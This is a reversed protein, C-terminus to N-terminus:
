PKPEVAPPAESPLSTGPAVPYRSAIIQNIARSGGWLAVYLFLFVETLKDHTVQWIMAWTTIVFAGSQFVRGPEVNWWDEGDRQARSALLSRLDFGDGPRLQWFALLCFAFMGFLALIINLWDQAFILLLWDKFQEM